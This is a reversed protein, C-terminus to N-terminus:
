HIYHRLKVSTAQQKVSAIKKLKKKLIMRFQDALALSNKRVAIQVHMKVSGLDL